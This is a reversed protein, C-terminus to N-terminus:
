DQGLNERERFWKEFETELRKGCFPCFKIPDSWHHEHYDIIGLRWKSDKGESGDDNWNQIRLGIEYKFDECCFMLTGKDTYLM